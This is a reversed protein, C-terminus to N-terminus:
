NEGADSDKGILWCKADPPWLIPAEADTRTILIWSWNGKPHVPKIEKSDLPSQLTKELVMTWFTPKGAMFLWMNGEEARLEELCIFTTRTKNSCRRAIEPHLSTPYFCEANEFLSFVSNYGRSLHFFNVPVGKYLFIEVSLYIFRSRLSKGVIIYLYGSRWM